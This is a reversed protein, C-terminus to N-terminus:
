PIMERAMSATTKTKPKYWSGQQTPREKRMAGHQERLVDKRIQPLDSSVCRRVGEYIPIALPEADRTRERVYDPSLSDLIDHKTRV